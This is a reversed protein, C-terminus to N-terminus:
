RLLKGCVWGETNGLSEFRSTPVPKAIRLGFGGAARSASCLLNTCPFFPRKFLLIAPAALSNGGDATLANTHCLRYASSYEGQETIQKWIKINISLSLVKSYRRRDPPMLYSVALQARAFSREYLDKNSSQFKSVPSTHMCAAPPIMEAESSLVGPALPIYLPPKVTLLDEGQRSWDFIHLVSAIALEVSQFGAYRKTHNGKGYLDEHRM